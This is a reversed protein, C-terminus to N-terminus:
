FEYRKKKAKLEDIKREYEKIHKEYKNEYQKNFLRCIKTVLSVFFGKSLREQEQKNRINSEIQLDWNKMEDFAKKDLIFNTHNLFFYILANIGQPNHSYHKQYYYDLFSDEVAACDLNEKIKGLLRNKEKLLDKKADEEHIFRNGSNVPPKQVPPETYQESESETKDSNKKLSVTGGNKLEERSPVKAARRGPPRGRRGIAPESVAEEDDSRLASVTESVDQAPDGSSMSSIDSNRGSVTKEYIDLVDKASDEDLSLKEKLATIKEQESLSDINNIAYFGYASVFFTSVDNRTINTLIQSILANKRAPNINMVKESLQSYEDLPQNLIIGNKGDYYVDDSSNKLEELRSYENFGVGTMKAGQDTDIILKNNAGQHGSIADSKSILLATKCKVEGHFFSACVNKLSNLAANDTAAVTAQAVDKNPLCGLLQEAAIVVYLVDSHDKIVRIRNLNAANRAIQDNSAIFYEGPVDVCTYVVKKDPKDNRSVLVYLVPFIGKATKEVALKKEIRQANNDYEYYYPDCLNLQGTVGSIKKGSRLKYYITNIFTSKGSTPTGIFSIIKQKYVGLYVSIQAGCEPCIRKVCDVNNYKIGTIKAENIVKEFGNPDFNLSWHHKSFLNIINRIKKFDEISKNYESREEPTLIPSIRQNFMNFKNNDLIDSVFPISQLRETLDGDVDYEASFMFDLVRNRSMVQETIISYLESAFVYKRQYNIHNLDFDIGLMASDAQDVISKVEIGNGGAFFNSTVKMGNDSLVKCVKDTFKNSDKELLSDIEISEAIKYKIIESSGNFFESYSFFFKKDKGCIEAGCQPCYATYM